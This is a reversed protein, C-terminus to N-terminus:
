TNLRCSAGDKVIYGATAGAWHTGIVLTPTDILDKIMAMRTRMALDADQDVGPSWHAHVLQCPHHMSDGTIIASDGQSEIMVSVHGPTHGPTPLLRVEDCIRHQAEVLDVLGADLVPKVSDAFTESLMSGMVQEDGHVLEATWYEFETRDLLYRANPFTPVWREGVLMTNWGVHDSHLHTCLVTDISERTYGAAKLDRLFPLQLHECFAASSRTKDNGFCTDVIIRRSATEIVLAHFSFRLLGQRDVFQPCLWDLGDLGGAEANPFAGQASRLMETEVIKTVKVDGIRWQRIPETAPLMVIDGFAMGGV